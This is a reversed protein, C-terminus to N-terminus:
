KRLTKPVNDPFYIINVTFATYANTERGPRDYLRRKSCSLIECVQQCVVFIRGTTKVFLPTSLRYQMEEIDFPHRSLPVNMEIKVTRYM